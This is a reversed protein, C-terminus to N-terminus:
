KRGGAKKIKNARFSYTTKKRAGLGTLVEEELGTKSLMKDIDSKSLTFFKWPDQGISNLMRFLGRKAEPTLEWSEAPYMDWAKDGCVVPKGTQQVFAKLREKLAKAAAELVFVKGAIQQAEEETVECETQAVSVSQAVKTGCAEAWPCGECHPGYNPPFHAENAGAHELEMAQKALRLAWARAEEMEERTYVHSQVREEKKARLFVLRAEVRELGHMEALALAKLALKFDETPHYVSWSTQWDTIRLDGDLFDIYGQLIPSQPDLPDLELAFHRESLGAGYQAGEVRAVRVLREIEARDFRAAQDLGVIEDIAEDIARDLAQGRVMRDIVAHIVKGFLAQETEPEPIGLVYRKYYRLPCQELMKLRTYSCSFVNQAVITQPM